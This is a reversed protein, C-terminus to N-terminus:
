CLGQCIQLLGTNDSDVGPPGPASLSLAAVRPEKKKNGKKLLDVSVHTVALLFLVIRIVPLTLHNLLAL